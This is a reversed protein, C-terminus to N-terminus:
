SLSVMAWLQFREPMENSGGGQPVPDGMGRDMMMPKQVEFGLGITKDTRLEVAQPHEVSKILPVKLEYVFYGNQHGMKAEIGLKAAEELSLEMGKDKIFDKRQGGRRKTIDQPPTRIIEIKEQLGELTELKKAFEKDTWRDNERGAPDEIDGEGRYERSKKENETISMGMSKLGIPFRIGFSKNKGGDPDFWAVFGSEMLQTEVKRNRSILCIYLYDQDNCLNVVLKEKEDYYAETKGWDSYKGDIIIESDRRSSELKLSGCGPLACICLLFM